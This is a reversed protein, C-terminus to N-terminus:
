DSRGNRPPRGRRSAARSLRGAGSRASAAAIAAVGIPGVGFRCRVLERRGDSWDSKYPEDGRLLDYETCGAAIAAGIIEARLVSGVGRWDRGTDRGAQYFSRRGAVVLDLETAVVTGDATVMEDLTVEGAVMGALAAARFRRWASLFESEEAWRGDHLRALEDLGRGGDDPEVSRHRVGERAFRRATRSVTSRVKGPRGALYEEGDRPLAAYPAGVHEVADAALATGLSGGAALGDLDVIRSGPRHIWALAARTVAARHEDTAILDLHDPALVGQGLCRLREIAVPGRGVRDAELAMGGVLDDGDFWCLLM